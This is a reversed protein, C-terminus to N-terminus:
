EGSAPGESWPPCERDPSEQQRVAPNYRLCNPTCACEFAIKMPAIKGENKLQFLRPVVRDRLAEPDITNVYIRTGGEFGAPTSVRWKILIRWPMPVDVDPPKYYWEENCPIDPGAAAHCGHVLDSMGRLEEASHSWPQSRESKSFIELTPFRHGFGAFAVAHDNEAVVLNRYAAFNVAAENYINPNDRVRRLALDNQVGREDIAVLQKHLHDFSAGAQKLWNQFVAVFRIYRNNAYMDRLADVTFRMYQDHEQPTLSGSSVLQHDHTAGDVYHRRAVIVEHGGGFFANALQLREDLSLRNREAEDLGSARLRQDVVQLVHQRGLESALYRCKHAEIHDPMRYDFNKQWYDFSVIEFLNPIRRFEAVTDFLHEACVQRLIKSGDSTKILRAKEPPTELYRSACFACHADHAAPNLPSPNPSSVGLPRNGRGPVTWVETHTFPNVQKITGDAMRMLYDAEPIVQSSM